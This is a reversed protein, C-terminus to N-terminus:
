SAGGTEADISRELLSLLRALEASEGQNLGALLKSENTFHAGAVADIVKLGEPTLQTYVIRRDEADRERIVLGAKELRDVRLTIGGTTVLSTSALQGATMRYPAGSRRLAALVDFSAMNINHADFLVNLASHYRLYVRHLRGFVQLPSVDIDPRQAAWQDVIDDVADRKTLSSDRDIAGNSM